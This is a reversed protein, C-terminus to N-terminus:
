PRVSLQVRHVIGLADSALSQTQKGERLPVTFLSCFLFHHPLSNDFQGVLLTGTHTTAQLKLRDASVLPGFDVSVSQQCVCPQMKPWAVAMVVV